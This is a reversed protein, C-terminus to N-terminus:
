SNDYILSMFGKFDFERNRVLRIYVLDLFAKEPEAMLFYETSEFGWFLRKSIQHYEFVWKEHQYTYPQKKTILTITYPVQSLISHFSLAYEVSLYAPHRLVMAVEEPTPPYFPNSYWGKVARKVTGSRILRTLEVLLTDKKEGTLQLLDSTSFLHKESHEKFLTLWESIKM